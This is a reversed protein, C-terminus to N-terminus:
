FTYTYNTEGDSFIVRKFGTNQLLELIKTENTLRYVLPRGMLINEMKITTKEKGSLRINVDMGMTLFIEDLKNKINERQKRMVKDALAKAEREQNQVLQKALAERKQDLKSALDQLNKAEAGEPSTPPIADLHIRAQAIKQHDTQIRNINPEWGTLLSKAKALHQAPTISELKKKAEEQAQLRSQEEFAKRQEDQYSSIGYNVLGVVCLVGILQWTQISKRKKADEKRM